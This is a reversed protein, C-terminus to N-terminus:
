KAPRWAMGMYSNRKKLEAIMQTLRKQKTSDLKAQMIWGIYDNQQYPPRQKYANILGHVTLAKRVFAPMAHRPRKLIAKRIAM